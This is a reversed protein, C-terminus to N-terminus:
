WPARGVYRGLLEPKPLWTAQQYKVVGVDALVDCDSARYRVQLALVFRSELVAALRASCLTSYRRLQLQVRPM